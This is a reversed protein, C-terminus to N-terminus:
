DDDNDNDFVNGVIEPDLGYNEDKNNVPDWGPAAKRYRDGFIYAGEVRSKAEHYLPRTNVRQDMAKTDMVKNARGLDMYKSATKVGTNGYTSQNARNLDSYKGIFGATKAPSDSVEYAGAMTLDSVPTAKMKAGEGNYAINISKVDGGYQNQYVNMEAYDSLQNNNFSGSQDYNGMNYEAKAEQDIDQDIEINNEVSTNNGGGGNDPAQGGRHPPNLDYIKHIDGPNDPFIPKNNGGNGPAQGGRDPPNLDVVQNGGGPPWGFHNKGNQEQGVKRWDPSGGPYSMGGSTDIDAFQPKDNSSWSNSQKNTQVNSKNSKSPDFADGAMRTQGYDFNGFQNGTFNNGSFRNTYAM